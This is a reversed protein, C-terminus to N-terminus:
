LNARWGPKAGLAHFAESAVSLAGMESEIYIAGRFLYFAGMLAFPISTVIAYRLSSQAMGYHSILFDSVAGTGLPGLALGVINMVFTFVAMSFARMRMPVLM